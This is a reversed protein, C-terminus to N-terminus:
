TPQRPRPFRLSAPADRPEYDVEFWLTRGAEDDHVGWRASILDVLMLGRGGEALLEGCLRPATRSGADVVDVHVFAYCDALALTVKGGGRSDSHIVSNTVVGSVLLTM